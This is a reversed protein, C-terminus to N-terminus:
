FNEQLRSVIWHSWHIGPDGNWHIWTIENWAWGIEKMEPRPIWNLAEVHVFCFLYRQRFNRFFQRASLVFTLSIFEWRTYYDRKCSKRRTRCHIECKPYFFTKSLCLGTPFYFWSSYWPHLWSDALQSNLSFLARNQEVKWARRCHKFLRCCSIESQKIELCFNRRYASWQEVTSFAANWYASEEHQRILRKYCSALAM